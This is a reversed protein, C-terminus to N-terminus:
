LGSYTLTLLPIFRGRVAASRRFFNIHIAKDDYPPPGSPGLRDAPTAHSLVLQVVIIASACEDIRRSTNHDVRRVSYM